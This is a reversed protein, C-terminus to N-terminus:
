LVMGVDHFHVLIELFLVEDINCGFQARPFLKEVVDDAVFMQGLFLGPFYEEVQETSDPVHMIVQEHM